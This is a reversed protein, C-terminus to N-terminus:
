VNKHKQSQLTTASKGRKTQEKHKLKKHHKHKKHKETTSQKTAPHKASAAQVPVTACALVLAAFVAAFSNLRM